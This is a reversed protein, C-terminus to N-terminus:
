LQDPQSSCGNVAHRGVWVVTEVGVTVTCFGVGFGAFVPDVTETLKVTELLVVTVPILTFQPSPVAMSLRDPVAVDSVCM